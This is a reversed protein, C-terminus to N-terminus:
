ISKTLHWGYQNPCKYVNLIVGRETKIIEARNLAGDMTEYLEKHKGKSDTCYICEKSQTQREKPSLHWEGCKSCKYPSLDLGRSYKVYSAGEEAECESSYASLPGGNKKFCITSKVPMIIIDYIRQCFDYKAYQFEAM